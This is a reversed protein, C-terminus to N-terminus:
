KVPSYISLPGPPPNELGQPLAKEIEMLLVKSDIPKTLFAAAGAMEAKKQLGPANSATMFILPVGRMLTSTKLRRAVTFGDGGPMSIDLLVLDPRQKIAITMATTADAASRM